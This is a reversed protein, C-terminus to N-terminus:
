KREGRGRGGGKKKGKSHQPCIMSSVMKKKKQFVALNNRKVFSNRM